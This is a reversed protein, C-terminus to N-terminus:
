KRPVIGTVRSVTARVDALAAALVRAGALSENLEAQARHLRVASEGASAARRELRRTHRTLEALDDLARRRLRRFARWAELGRVAAFAACGAVAAVAVGLAIWVSLTV